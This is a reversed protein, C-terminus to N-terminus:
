SAQIEVNQRQCMSKVRTGIVSLSAATTINKIQKEDISAIYSVVQM